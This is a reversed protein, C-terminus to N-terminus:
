QDNWLTPQKRSDKIDM